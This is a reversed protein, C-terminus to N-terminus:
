KERSWRFFRVSFLGFVAAFAVLAACALGVTGVGRVGTLSGAIGEGMYRLPLVSSIAKLWGPFADLPYFTGSVFAMPMMVCNSVAGVAEPSSVYSGILLGIVFFATIGCLLVPITLPWTGALHLGFVPLSAVAVFLGAQVLGVGVTLVYRAGLVTVSSVPTMRILRIVEDRRWHMMTYAVGFLAGNGIGYAVIGPGIYDIYHHGNKLAQGKFVLGLAVLFILPFVFSFFLTVKDRVFARYTAASLAGYGSM